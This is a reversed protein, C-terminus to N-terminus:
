ATPNNVWVTWLDAIKRRVGNTGGNGVKGFAEVAGAKDGSRALAIGLRTNVEDADVGGKQLALRYLEAAKAYDGFGMYASATSSAPKGTAASAASTASSALTAKDKAASETALRYLDSLSNNDIEGRARGTEIVAKVEGPLGAKWASEAYESYSYANQLSKSSDMLRMLDLTEDRTMNDNADQLSRLVVRWNDPTGAHALALKSWEIQSPDDALVSMKLGRTYWSADVAEGASQRLEIAKKLHPLGQQVLAKGAPNFQNGNVNNYAEGFYSEALYIEPNAGEYGAQAAQQLHQRAAAHDKANLAFQGAFYHFKPVDAAPTMGSALMTEVGKRQLSEDKLGIGTNLYFNGLFYKDDPKTATPEIEALKAKAGEFDSKALMEQLAQAGPTFEKSPSLKMKGDDAKKDNKKQAVAASPMMMGASVAALAISLATTRLLRM